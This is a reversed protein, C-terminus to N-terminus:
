ITRGTATGITKQEENRGIEMTNLAVAAVLVSLKVVPGIVFVQVYVIVTLEVTMQVIGM